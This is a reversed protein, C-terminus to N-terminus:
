VRETRLLLVSALMGFAMVPAWSALWPMLIGMEGLSLTIGDTVFYLFGLGVGAAFLAGLGGGRKFRSALPICLMIMILSTAIPTLRKHWWTKYVHAPRIGFGANDIFYKLDSITMEEPDGSRSGAAAPRIKGAYPLSAHRQPKESGKGYVLANTLIWGTESREATEAFVQESLLGNENRKFIIVNKLLTSDDNASGARLIDSGSRLWIPDREGVKLQKEGYDAVGWERLLPAIAPVARDNLLFHLVGVLLAVPALMWVLRFPSVGTAWIATTENRYSLETLTLLMALLLSIPLFTSLTAPSRALIYRTIISVSNNELALIEKSYTVVELTLVFLSVGILISFFRVLVMKALMRALVTM